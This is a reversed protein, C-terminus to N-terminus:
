RSSHMDHALYVMGLEVLETVLEGIQGLCSILRHVIRSQRQHVGVTGKGIPDDRLLLRDLPHLLLQVVPRDIQEGTAVSSRVM